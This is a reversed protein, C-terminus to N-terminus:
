WNSWPGPFQPTVQIGGCCLFLMGILSDARHFGFARRAIMRLKNNFGESRANTLLTTVYALIGKKHKRITGALKKFPKLKARSAWSLWSDLESVATKEDPTRFINALTEKLLYARYLPANHKQISALKDNERTSLDWPNKLLAFRSKKIAKADESKDLDTFQNSIARRVKDVAESTLKLVHFLDFVIQANPAKAEISKIFAASMDATVVEIGKAREEGIEDFFANLTDSSKGKKAWIVRRTDHDVVITIYRHRKLYGFEDVGINKLRDFRGPDLKEAVIREVINGVTRWSIGMIRAVETMNTIQALYATYEEFPRTFRSDARAWPVMEVRVGCDPCQVRRPAYELILRMGGVGLHVWRVPKHAHDYGPCVKGCKSCRPAKWSPKVTFVILDGEIEVWTVFLSAIGILVRAFKNVRM